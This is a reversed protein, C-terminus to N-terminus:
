DTTQNTKCHSNFKFLHRKPMMSLVMFNNKLKNSYYIVSISFLFLVYIFFHCSFKILELLYHMLVRDVLKLECLTAVKLLM